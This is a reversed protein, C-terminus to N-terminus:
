KCYINNLFEFYTRMIQSLSYKKEIEIRAEKGLKDRLNIDEALRNIAQGLSESNEKEVLIGSKGNRIVENIGGVNSSVVPLGCSMAEIVSFAVGESLISPYVFVDSARLYSPMQEKDKEGLFLIKDEDGEAMKRLKEEVSDPQNRGSGILMLLAEKKTSSFKKWAKLLFVLGKRRVLRGCYTVVLKQKPLNLRERLSDKEEKNAPIFIKEDVGDPIVRIQSESVGFLLLERKIQETQAIYHNAMRAFFLRLKILPHVVKKSALAASGSFFLEGPTAVRGVIKKKMLKCLVIATSGFINALGGNVLIIDAFNRKKILFIALSLGSLYDSIRGGGSSGLRIVEFQQNIVEKQPLDQRWRKTAVLVKIGRASFSEALQLSQTESGGTLPFFRETVVIISSLTKKVM